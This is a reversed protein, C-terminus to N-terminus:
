EDKLSVVQASINSIDDKLVKSKEPFNFYIQHWHGGSTKSEKAEGKPYDVFNKTNKLLNPTVPLDKFDPKAELAQDMKSQLEDLRVIFEAMQSDM